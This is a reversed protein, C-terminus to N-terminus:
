EEAKKKRLRQAEAKVEEETMRGTNDLVFEANKLRERNKKSKGRLLVERMFKREAELYEEPNAYIETYKEVEGKENVIHRKVERPYLKEVTKKLKQFDKQLLDIRTKFAMNENELQGIATEMQMIKDEAQPITKPFLRLVESIKIFDNKLEADHIYTDDSAPIAKGCMLKASWSSIGLEACTRLFLKRGTHWRFLGHNVIGARKIVSKLINDIQKTSLHPKKRKSQFLYPNERDLLPLYKELLQKFEESIFTRAVVQEKKTNIEIPIPAQGSRDFKQWKLLAVDGIRMGLLYVELLVQERLDALKAMAQIESIKARHDRTTRVTKYIQLARRYKVETGHYKLFQIVSNTVNRCTNQGHRERLWCYFREVEKGADPNKILTEIPKHFYENEFKKIGSKYSKRTHPSPIGSLWEEVLRMDM